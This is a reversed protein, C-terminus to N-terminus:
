RFLACGHRLIVVEEVGGRSRGRNRESNIANIECYKERRSAKIERVNAYM